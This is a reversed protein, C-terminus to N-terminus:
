ALYGILVQDYKRQAERQYACENFLIKSHGRDPANFFLKRVSYFLVSADTDSKRTVTEYQNRNSVGAPKM